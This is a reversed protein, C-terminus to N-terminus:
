WFHSYANFCAQNKNGVSSTLIEAGFGPSGVDVVASKLVTAVDNNATSEEMSCDKTMWCSSYTTHVTMATHEDPLVCAKFFPHFSRPVYNDCFHRWLRNEIM